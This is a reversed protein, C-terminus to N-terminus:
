ADILCQNRLATGGTMYPIENRAWRPSQMSELDSSRPNRPHNRRQAKSASFHDRYLSVTPLPRNRASGIKLLRGTSDDFGPFSRGLARSISAYHDHFDDDNGIGMGIGDVVKRPLDKVLYGVGIHDNVCPIERGLPQNVLQALDAM